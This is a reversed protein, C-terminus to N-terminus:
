GDGGQREKAYLRRYYKRALNQRTREAHEGEQFFLLWAADAWNAPQNKSALYQALRRIEKALSDGRARMLRVFRLESWGAEAMAAGFPTSPDHLGACTGMAMLLIAWRKEREETLHDDPVYELLIKWLAPTFPEDPSIRRLEALDGKSIGKKYEDRSMFGAIQHVTTSLDPKDGAEFTSPGPEEASEDAGAESTENLQSESM